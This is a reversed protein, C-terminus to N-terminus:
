LCFGAALIVYAIIKYVVNTLGMSFLKVSIDVLIVGAAVFAASRRWHTYALGEFTAAMALLAASLAVWVSGAFNSGSGGAALALVIVAFVSMAIANRRENPTELKHVPAQTTEM